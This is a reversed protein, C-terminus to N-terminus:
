PVSVWSLPTLLQSSMCVGLLGPGVPQLETSSWVAISILIGIRAMAHPVEARSTVALPCLHTCLPIILPCLRCGGWSHTPITQPDQSLQSGKLSKSKLSSASSTNCITKLGWTRDFVQIEYTRHPGQGLTGFLIHAMTFPPSLLHTVHCLCCRFALM